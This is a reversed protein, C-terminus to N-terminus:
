LAGLTSSTTHTGVFDLGLSSLYGDLQEETMIGIHIEQIQGDPNVFFTSPYGIIQYLDQIEAGPDLLPDFTLGLEQVFESVETSTENNNVALIVLDPSFHDFRDQFAPMELRCPACWTAWFNLLVVQGRFDSLEVEEGSLSELKFDPALANKEVLVVENSVTAESNGTETVIPTLFNLAGLLYLVVLIVTSIGSGIFWWDLFSKGRSKAVYAIVLGMVGAALVGFLLLRGVVVEDFTDFFTGFTALSEFRGLFLLIGIIILIVGMVIETYHMVKGYRRLITTVWGIQTAALLFPIALGASYAALLLGGELTSGQSFSLTLIAGLIPGVCPSWGASFFVGMVASSIYGRRRDPQSQPRLDFELFPIRLIYTMHLGFIVVVVAGVKVLIDTFDVLFRGLSGALLGLIVFVVSFGIVFAIGHSFTRWTSSEASGSKTAAASRGGLYGVYAPVLAFVCPSLFSALGAFFALGLSIDNGM